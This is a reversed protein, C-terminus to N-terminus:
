KPPMPLLILTRPQGWSFVPYGIRFIVLAYFPHLQPGLTQAGVWYACPGTEFELASSLHLACIFSGLSLTTSVLVTVCCYENINKLM